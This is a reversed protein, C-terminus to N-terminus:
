SLLSVVKLMPLNILHKYSSLLICSLFLPAYLHWISVSELFPVNYATQPYFLNPEQDQRLFYPHYEM